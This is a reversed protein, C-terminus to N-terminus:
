LVEWHVVEDLNYQRGQVTVVCAGNELHDVSTVPGTTETQGISDGEDIYITDGPAPTVRLLPKQGTSQNKIEVGQPTINVIVSQEDQEVHFDAVVPQKDAGMDIIIRAKSM